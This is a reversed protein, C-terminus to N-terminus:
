RNAAVTIESIKNDAIARIPQKISLGIIGGISKQAGAIHNRTHFSLILLSIRVCGAVKLSSVYVEPKSEVISCVIKGSLSVAKHIYTGRLYDQRHGALCCNQYVNRGAVIVIMTM